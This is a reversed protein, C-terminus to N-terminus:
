ANDYLRGITTNLAHLETIKRISWALKRGHWGMHPDQHCERCLAVCVFHKGQVIHHADSPGPTDCVSCPLGKVKGVHARELPTMPKKNRSWM